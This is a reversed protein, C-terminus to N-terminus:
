VLQLFEQLQAASYGEYDKGTVASIMEPSIYAWAEDNYKEYFSKTMLQRRGWTIVATNTPDPHGMCPVYHGGVVEAGAVVDWPKGEFFQQQASDPVEIGLGVCEFLYAAELLHQVNKPELAVFIGIKHVGGRADRFGRTRRWNLVDRVMSGNDNEGTKPNYGSYEAYQEVVVKGTMLPVPRGANFNLEMIEHAPGAWACDGCGGFGPFVSDDPGNGLMLWDKFDKGHGFHAPPPPVKKGVMRFDAFLLDRKDKTAPLKGMKLHTADM